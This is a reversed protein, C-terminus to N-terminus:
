KKTIHKIKEANETSPSCTGCDTSNLFDGSLVPEFKDEKYEVGVFDQELVALLALLANQYINVEPVENLKVSELIIAKQKKRMIKAKLKLRAVDFEMLMKKLAPILIRVALEQIFEEDKSIAMLQLVNQLNDALEEGCDHNIKAQERKMQVLFDGRKYDEGFLVYGLDLFCIAQIHFTIGFVDEIQHLTSKGVYDSFRQFEKAGEPYGQLMQTVAVVGEKYGEAPYQFVKALKNYHELNSM